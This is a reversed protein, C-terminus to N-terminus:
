GLSRNKNDVWVKNTIFIEVENGIDVITQKMSTYLSIKGFQKQKEFETIKM